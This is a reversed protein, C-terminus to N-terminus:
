VVVGNKKKKNAYRRQSKLFFGRKKSLIKERTLGGWVEGVHSFLFTQPFFM